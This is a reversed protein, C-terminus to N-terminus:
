QITQSKSIQWLCCKKGRKEMERKGGEKGTNKFAVKSQVIHDGWVKSFPQGLLSGTFSIKGM